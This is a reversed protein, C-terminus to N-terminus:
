FSVRSKPTQRWVRCVLGARLAACREAVKTRRAETFFLLLFLIIFQEHVRRSWALNALRGGQFTRGQKNLKEKLCGGAGPDDGASRCPARPLLHFLLPLFRLAFRRMQNQNSGNRAANKYNPMILGNTQPRVKTPTHKSYLLLFCLLMFPSKEHLAPTPTASQPVKQALVSCRPAPPICRRPPPSPSEAFSPRGPHLLATPDETHGTQTNHQM